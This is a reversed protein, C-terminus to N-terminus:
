QHDPFMVAEQLVAPLFHLGGLELLLQGLAVADFARRAFQDTALSQAVGAIATEHFHAQLIIQEARGASQAPEAPPAPPFRRLHVM